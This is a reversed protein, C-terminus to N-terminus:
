FRYRAGLNFTWSRELDNGFRYEVDGYAHINGMVAAQFGMGVDFWTGHNSLDWELGNVGTTNDAVHITQSGWFERFVDAKFYSVTSKDSSAFKGVRFGMRGILSDIADQKVRTGQQTTYDGNTIHTYQFQLQPEVFWRSNNVLQHGAEFSLGYLWNGYDVDLKVCSPTYLTFDSSLRGVKLVLDGYFGTDSLYTAYLSLAERDTGGDGHISKYDTRGYQYDLATGWIMRGRATPKAYDYGFQYMSNYSRFDGIGANSGLRDHKVRAWVNSNYPDNIRDGYRQNWRDIAVANWYTARATAMITEGANSISTDGTRVIYVNQSEGTEPSDYISSVYDHGPKESNMESGDYDVASNDSTRDVYEIAYDINLAGQDSISTRTGFVSKGNGNSISGKDFGKGAYAITAFRVREGVDMALIEESNAIVINQTSSTGNYVYLMNGSGDRLLNMVFTNNSGILNGIHLAFNSHGNQTDTLDIINNDGTLTTIWSQGTLFWTSNSGLDVNVVGSSAIDTTFSPTFISKHEDIWEPNDADKYDDSRGSWYSGNGLKIEISGNNAAIVDGTMRSSATQASALPSLTIAGYGVAVIDGIVSSTGTHIVNLTSTSTNYKSSSGAFIATRKKNDSTKGEISLNGKTQLNITGGDLSSITGKLSILSRSLININSKKNAQIEGTAQLSEIGNEITSIISRNGESYIAYSDSGNMQIDYKSGDLTIRTDAQILGFDFGNHLSGNTAAIGYSHDGKSVIRTDEISISGNKAAWIGYNGKGELKIDTSGDLDISAFGKSRGFQIDSGSFVATPHYIKSDANAKITIETKEAVSITTLKGETTSTNARMGNGREVVAKFRNFTASGGDADRAINLADSQEANVFANFNHLHLEPVWNMMYIADSNVAASPDPAVVEIYLDTNPANLRFSNPYNGRSAESLPTVFVNVRDFDGFLVKEGTEDVTYKDNTNTNIVLSNGKLTLTGDEEITVSTPTASASLSFASLLACVLPLLHTKIRNELLHHNQADRSNCKTAVNFQYTSKM